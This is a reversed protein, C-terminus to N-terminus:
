NVIILITDRNIEVLCREKAFKEKLLELNKGLIEILKQTSINGLNIKLLRTPTKKILHSNKFDQDKSMVTYNHRDAYDVIDQDKTYWSDLIDNVHVSEIGNEQFFQVVKRAIHVDCLVKM